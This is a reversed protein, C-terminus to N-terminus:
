KHLHDFMKVSTERTTFQGVPIWVLDMFTMLLGGGGQLVRLAVFGFVTGYPIDHINVPEDNYLGKEALGGLSDIVAKYQIPVYLNVIRGIMLILGCSCVLGQLYRNDPGSPWIFPLLKRFYHIFESFSSPPKYDDKDSRSSNSSSPLSSSSIPNSDGLQSISSTSGNAQSQSYSSSSAHHHRQIWLEHLTRTIAAIVLFLLLIYRTCFTVMEGPQLSSDDSSPLSMYAINHVLEVNALIFALFWFLKTSWLWPLPAAMTTTNMMPNTSHPSSSPSEHLSLHVIHIIWPLLPFASMGIATLPFSPLYPSKPNKSSNNNNNNNNNNDPLFMSITSIVDLIYTVMIVGLAIYAFRILRAVTPSLIPIRIPRTRHHPSSRDLDEELLPEDEDHGHHGRHRQGRFPWLPSNPRTNLCQTSIKKLIWIFLVYM